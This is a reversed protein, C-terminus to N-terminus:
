EAFQAVLSKFDWPSENQAGRFVIFHLHDRDTWGTKGVLAVQQGTQVRMGVKVGSQSVSHQSLHCYQSFEGNGHSITVYNLYDGYDSTPGWHNSSEQVETVTGDLAALVPTGDPILFDIAHKFPSLHSEPSTACVFSGRRYVQDGPIGEALREGERVAIEATLSLPYRYRNKSPEDDWLPSDAWKKLDDM